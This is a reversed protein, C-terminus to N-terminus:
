AAKHALTILYDKLKNEEGFIGKLWENKLNQTKDDLWWENVDSYVSLLHESASRADTHLIKAKILKDFFEQHGEELYVSNFDCFCITPKNMFLSELYATSLNDIIVLKSASMQQKCTEGKNKFSSVFSVNKLFSSLVEEKNYRLGTLFYDKPYGRYSIKQLVKTPLTEFFEYVFSLSKEGFINQHSYFSTYLTLIEEFPYSVYLIDYKTLKSPESFPFLSSMSIVNQHRSEWGVTLYEDVLKSIFEVTNGVYPHFICNHENYLTKVNKNEYAISRFLNIKTSSLWAESCIYQMNPYQNIEATFLTHNSKFSELLIKPTLKVLCFFFFQDFEDSSKYKLFLSERLEFDDQEKFVLSPTNIKKIRKNTHLELEHINDKSFYCGILAIKTKKRFQNEKISLISKIISKAKCTFSKCLSKFFSKKEDLKIHTFQFNEPHFFQCYLSFLLNQGYWSSNLLERVDEYTNPVPFDEINIIELIHKRTDITNKFKSFSQHVSTILRLLGLSIFRNWFNNSYNTCHVGNLLAIIESIYIKHKAFIYSSIENLEEKSSFHLYSPTKDLNPEKKETCFFSKFEKKNKSWIKREFNSAIYKKRNNIFVM